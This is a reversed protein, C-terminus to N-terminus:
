SHDKSPRHLALKGQHAQQQDDEHAPRRRLSRGGLGLEEVVSHAGEEDGMTEFAMPLLLCPPEVKAGTGTCERTSLTTSSELWIIGRLAQEVLTDGGALHGRCLLQVALLHRDQLPPDVLSSLKRVRRKIGEGDRCFM